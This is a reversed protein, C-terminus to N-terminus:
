APELLELRLIVDTSCMSELEAGVDLATLHNRSWKFGILNRAWKATVSKFISVGLCWLCGARSIGLAFVRSIGLAFVTGKYVREMVLIAREAVGHDCMELVIPAMVNAIADTTAWANVLGGSLPTALVPAVYTQRLPLVRIIGPAFLIM